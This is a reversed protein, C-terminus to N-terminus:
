RSRLVVILHEMLTSLVLEVTAFSVLVRVLVIAISLSNVSSEHFALCVETVSLAVVWLDFNMSNLVVQSDSSSRFDAVQILSRVLVSHCIVVSAEDFVAGHRVGLDQMVIVTNLFEGSIDDRSVNRFDSGERMVHWSHWGIILEEPGILMSSNAGVIDVM